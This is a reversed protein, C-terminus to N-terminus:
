LESWVRDIHCPHILWTVTSASASASCMGRRRKSEMQGEDGIWAMGCARLLLSAMGYRNVGCAMGCAMGYRKEGGGGGGSLFENPQCITMLLCNIQRRVASYSNWM